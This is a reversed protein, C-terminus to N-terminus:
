SSHVQIAFRLRHHHIPLASGHDVYEGVRMTQSGIDVSDSTAVAQKAVCDDIQGTQVLATMRKTKLVGRLEGVDHVAKLVAAIDNFVELAVAAQQLSPVVNCGM